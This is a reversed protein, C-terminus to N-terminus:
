PKRDRRGERKTDFIKGATEVAPIGNRFHM